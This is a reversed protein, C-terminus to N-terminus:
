PTRASGHHQPQRTPQELNSAQSGCLPQAFPTTLPVRTFVGFVAFNVASLTLLSTIEASRLTGTLVTDLM